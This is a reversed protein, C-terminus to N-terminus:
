QPEIGAGKIVKAWKDVDRRIVADFDQPTGPAVVVGLKAFREKIDAISLIKVTEANLRNIIDPPTGAPALLGQWVLAEYGKLGSEDLTPLSPALPSRGLSTVAVAKVKDTGLHPSAVSLESFLIKVDGSLLGNLAPAAGRYPVHLLKVGAMSAFLEAALHAPTGIGASSYTAPEKQAKAWAILEQVSNVPVSPHVLLVYQNEAVLAIPAYDRFVDYQLSKYLSPAIAHPGAATMLLNYGDAPAKAAALNGTTGGAGPRNEIIVPQGLADSLKQGIMRAAIDTGGGAAFGVIVHIPKNPYSQAAAPLIAASLASVVGALALFLLHATRFQM